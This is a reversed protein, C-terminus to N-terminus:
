KTAAATTLVKRLSEMVFELGEVTTEPVGPTAAITALGFQHVEDLKAIMLNRDPHLKAMMECFLLLGHVEGTLFSIRQRDHNTAQKAM